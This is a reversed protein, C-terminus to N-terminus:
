GRTLRLAVYAALALALLWIVVMIALGVRSAPRREMERARERCDAMVDPPVLRLALLLGAPVIVLDDLYGLVPIFDPILDIPSLAYTVVAAAVVKALWPTRPDRCALYLATTERKLARARERLRDIAV